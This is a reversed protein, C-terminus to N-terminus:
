IPLRTCPDSCLVRSAPPPVNHVPIQVREHVSGDLRNMILRILAWRFRQALQVMEQAKGMLGRLDQFAQEM